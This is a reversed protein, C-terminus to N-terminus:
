LYRTSGRVTSALFERPPLGAREVDFEDNEASDERAHRRSIRVIRTTLIIKQQDTDSGFM